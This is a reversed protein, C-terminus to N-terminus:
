SGYHNREVLIIISERYYTVINPGLCLNIDKNGEVEQNNIILNCESYPYTIVVKEGCHALCGSLSSSYYKTIGAQRVQFDHLYKPDDGLNSIERTQPNILTIHMNKRRKNYVSFIIFFLRRIQIPNSYLYPM